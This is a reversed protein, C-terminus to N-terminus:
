TLAAEDFPFIHFCVIILVDVIILIDVIIFVDVTILIDVIIFVDVTILIDVVPTPWTASERPPPVGTRPLRQVSAFNRQAPADAPELV